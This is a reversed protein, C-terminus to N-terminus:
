KVFSDRPHPPAIVSMPALRLYYHPPIEKGVASLLSHHPGPRRLLPDEGVTSKRVAALPVRRHPPIQQGTGAM